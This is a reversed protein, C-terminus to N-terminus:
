IQSSIVKIMLELSTMKSDNNWSQKVLSITIQSLTHQILSLAMDQMLLRM